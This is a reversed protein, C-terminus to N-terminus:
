GDFYKGSGDDIVLGHTQRKSSVSSTTSNTGGSLGDALMKWKYITPGELGLSVYSDFEELFIVDVRLNARPM